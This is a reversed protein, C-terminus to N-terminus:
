LPKKNLLQLGSQTTYHYDIVVIEIRNSNVKETGRAFEKADELTTGVKHQLLTGNVSGDANKSDVVILSFNPM